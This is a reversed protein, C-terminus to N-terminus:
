GIVRSFTNRNYGFTNQFAEQSFHINELWLDYM